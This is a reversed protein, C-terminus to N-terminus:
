TLPQGRLEILYTSYEQSFIVEEPSILRIETMNILNSTIVFPIVM